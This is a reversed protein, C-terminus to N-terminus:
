HTPLELRETPVMFFGGERLNKKHHYSYVVRVGSCPLKVVFSLRASFAPSRLSRIIHFSGALLAALVARETPVMFLGGERLNKKHHYSYVVRVGSCPLKVVFSLRASFASSCLSRIIHFSGVLLAALVARETPVM